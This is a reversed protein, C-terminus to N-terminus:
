FSIIEKQGSLNKPDVRLVKGYIHDILDVISYSSPIHGEGSIKVMQAIKLRLNKNLIM